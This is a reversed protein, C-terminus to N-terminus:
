RVLAPNQHAHCIAVSLADTTDLSFERKTKLLQKVMLSVQNKDAHGYGVVSLKITTAPYEFVKLGAEAAALLVVGRAHGLRIASKVNKAFFVDEVAAEDPSYERIVKQLEAYIEILREPLSTRTQTKIQGAAVLSLRPGDKEVLGYGTVRSGPDIGLTM